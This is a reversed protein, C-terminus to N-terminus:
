TTLTASWTVEGIIGAKEGEVMNSTEPFIAM